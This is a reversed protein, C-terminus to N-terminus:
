GKILNQFYTPKNKETNEILASISKEQKPTKPTLINLISLKIHFSTTRNALSVLTFASNQLNKANFWYFYPSNQGWKLVHKFHVGELGENVYAGDSVFNIGKKFMERQLSAYNNINGLSQAIQMCNKNWYAHSSLNDDTFLPTSIIKSYGDFKGDQIDKELGALSGGIKNAFNKVIDRTEKYNTNAVIEGNENYTWAPNYFDPM